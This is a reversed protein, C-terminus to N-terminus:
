QKGVSIFFTHTIYCTYDTRWSQSTYNSCLPLHHLRCKRTDYPQKQRHTLMQTKWLKPFKQVKEM